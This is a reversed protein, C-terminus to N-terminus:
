QRRHFYIERNWPWHIKRQEAQRYILPDGLSAGLRWIESEMFSPNPNKLGLFPTHMAMCAGGWQRRPSGQHGHPGMGGSFSSNNQKKETHPFHKEVWYREQCSRYWPATPLLTQRGGRPSPSQYVTNREPSNVILVGHEAPCKENCSYINWCLSRFVLRYLGLRGEKFVVVFGDNYESVDLTGWYLQMDLTLM